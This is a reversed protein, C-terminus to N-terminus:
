RALPTTASKSWPTLGIIKRYFEFGKEESDAFAWLNELSANSNRFVKRIRSLIPLGSDRQGGEGMVGRYRVQVSLNLDSIVFMAYFAILM